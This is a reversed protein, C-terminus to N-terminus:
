KAGKHLTWGKLSLVYNCIIIKQVFYVNLIVMKMNQARREVFQCLNSFTPELDAEILAYAREVWKARISYPLRKVICSITSTSDLDSKYGLQKLTIECKSLENALQVLATVDNANITPGKTLNDIFSRAIIHPRGYRSQLLAVAKEYGEQPNLLVCDEILKKPDGTCFQILYSLRLSPDSIKLVINTEFNKMFKFYDKPTGSFTLLEPKPLTVGLSLSKLFDDQFNSPPIREQVFLSANPARERVSHPVDHNKEQAILSADAIREQAYSSPNLIDEEENENVFCEEKLVSAELACKQIEHEIEKEQFRQEFLLRERELKQRELLQKRQLKYLSQKKMIDSLSSSADSHSDQFDSWNQVREDFTKLKKIQAALSNDLEEREEETVHALYQYHADEFKRFSQHFRNQLEVAESVSRKNKILIDAEKHLRTLHGLYSSRSHKLETM